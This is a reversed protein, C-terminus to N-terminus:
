QALRARYFRLVNNSAANDIVPLSNSTLTVTTLNTWNPLASTFDIYYSTNSQGHLTFAFAGNAMIHPAGIVPAVNVTLRAAASTANGGSNSVVAFYFAEDSSQASSITYSPGNAGSIAQAPGGDVSKFWQYALPATGTASVNFTVPSNVDVSQDGPDGTISPPVIIALSAVVSTVSGAANSIVVSYDGANAPQASAIAYAPLNAGHIAQAPGGGISKFWQYSLPGSGAAAVNFQALNGAIATLNTPQVTIFPPVLVTLTADASIISGASNLVIARYIGADTPQVNNLTLTAGSAGPLNTPTGGSVAHQWQYTFAPTGAVSVQFNASGSAIVTVNTPQATITPATAGSHTNTAGASAPEAKWSLAENGYLTPAIRQLSAGGGDAATPWPSLNSYIVRDVLIQPVYGADPHPPAQPVDPKYLEIIDGGNNLRGKFPGVVTGNNGYRSRFSALAAANTAPDFSVVILYGGANITQNTAFKFSIGGDIRWTNTPHAADYLAVTNATPNYLEVFEEDPNEGLGTGIISVPHYNVENLVVPGVKAYSNSL